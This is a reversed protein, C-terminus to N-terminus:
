CGPQVLVSHCVLRGSNRKAGYVHLSGVQPGQTGPCSIATLVIKMGVHACSIWHTVYSQAAVKVTLSQM